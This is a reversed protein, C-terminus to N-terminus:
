VHLICESFLQGGELCDAKVLLHVYALSRSSDTRHHCHLTKRHHPHSHIFGCLQREIMQPHTAKCMEKLQEIPYRFRYM